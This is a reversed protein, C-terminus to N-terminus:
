SETEILLSSRKESILKIMNTVVTEADTEFRSRAYPRPLFFTYFRSGESTVGLAWLTDSPNGYQDIVQLNEDVEIGESVYAENNFYRAIGRNVLNKLLHDKGPGNAPLRADILIDAHMRVEEWLGAVVEWGNHTRNVTTEPGFDAIVVEAEILAILQAIREVPPGVSLRKLIPLFEDYVWKQSDGTLRGFDIASAILERHDRLVDCAAKVPSCLNGNLAEMIDMELYSLFFSKYANHSTLAVEPTPNKLMEWSFTLNDPIHDAYESIWASIDPPTGDQWSPNAYKELTGNRFMAAYYAVEMDNLILPFLDRQFDIKESYKIKGVMENTFYTGKRQNLNTKQNVPRASLPLGSRSFALIKPENGSPKYRLKKEIPDHYFQGGRGQTLESIIDFAVLGLGRIAVSHDGSLANLKDTVPFPNLIGNECDDGYRDDPNISHGTCLFVYEINHFEENETTISWKGQSDKMIDQVLSTVMKVEFVDDIVHILESLMDKLYCGFLARPQYSGLPSHNVLVIKDLHMKKQVCDSIWEDFTMSYRTTLEDSMQQGPFMVIQEAATNLLLFKSQDTHHCGPGHEKKDFFLIEVSSDKLKIASKVIRELVSLGRPGGGVIAVRISSTCSFNINAPM